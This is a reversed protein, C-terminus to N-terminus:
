SDNTDGSVKVHREIIERLKRNKATQADKQEFYFKREHAIVERAISLLKEDDVVKETM